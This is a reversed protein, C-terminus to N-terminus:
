GRAASGEDPREAAVKEGWHLSLLSPPCRNPCMTSVKPMLLDSPRRRQATGLAADGGRRWGPAVGWGATM